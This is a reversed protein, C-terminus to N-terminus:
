DFRRWKPNGNTLSFSTYYENIIDQIRNASSTLNVKYTVANLQSVRDKLKSRQPVVKSFQLIKLRYGKTKLIDIRSQWM